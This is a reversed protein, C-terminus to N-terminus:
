IYRKKSSPAAYNPVSIISIKQTSKVQLAVCIYRKNVYFNFISCVYISNPKVNKTKELKCADCLKTVFTRAKHWFYIYSTAINVQDNAVFIQTGYVIRHQIKFKDRINVYKEFHQLYM